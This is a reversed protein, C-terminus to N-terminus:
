KMDYKEELIKNASVFEDHNIASDILFKSILVEKVKAIALLVIRDHKKRKKKIISRYKKTGATIECLKLRM